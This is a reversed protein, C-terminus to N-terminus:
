EYQKQLELLRNLYRDSSILDQETYIHKRGYKYHMKILHNVMLRYLLKM